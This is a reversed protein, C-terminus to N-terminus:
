GCTLLEVFPAVDLLDIVRDQNIDAAPIYQGGATNNFPQIDLLNVDRDGNVDGIIFDLEVFSIGNGASVGLGGLDVASGDDLSIQLLRSEQGNESDVGYLHGDAGFTLADIDTFGTPGLLTLQGSNKDLTYINESNSDDGASGAAYLTGDFGFAIAEVRAAGTIVAIFETTGLVPDLIQLQMGDFLGYVVGDPSADLGRRTIFVQSDLPVDLSIAANTKDITIVRNAARDLTLLMDDFEVLEYLDSGAEITGILRDNISQYNSVQYLGNDDVSLLFFFNVPDASAVEFGITLAFFVFCLRRM